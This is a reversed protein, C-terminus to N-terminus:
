RISDLYESMRIKYPQVYMDTEVFKLFEERTLWLYSITEGEQLIISEKDCDTECLYGYYLTDNSIYKYISELKEAEVGTEEKLERVAADYPEEGKLSSGSAGAEYLGPYNPKKWERQMLLYMGGKHKVIIESILHFLGKPIEEGRILECGALTGDEKYADWIEM